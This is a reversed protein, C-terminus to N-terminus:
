NLPIASDTSLILSSFGELTTDTSTETLLPQHLPPVAQEPIKKWCIVTQPVLQLSHSPLLLSVLCFFPGQRSLLRAHKDRGGRGQM